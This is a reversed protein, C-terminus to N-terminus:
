LLINYFFVYMFLSKTYNINSHNIILQFFIFLFPIRSILVMYIYSNRYMKRYAMWSSTFFFASWNWVFWKENHIKTLANRYHLDKKENRKWSEQLHYEDDKIKLNKDNLSALEIIKELMFFDM